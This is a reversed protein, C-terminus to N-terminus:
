SVLGVFLLRVLPRFAISRGNKLLVSVSAQSGSSHLSLCVSIVLRGLLGVPRSVLRIVPKEACCLATLCHLLVSISISSFYCVCILLM